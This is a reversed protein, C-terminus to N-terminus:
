ATPCPADAGRSALALIALDAPKFYTYNNPDEIARLGTATTTIHCTYHNADYNFITLVTGREKPAPSPISRLHPYLRELERELYRKRQSLATLDETVKRLEQQLYAQRRTPNEDTM